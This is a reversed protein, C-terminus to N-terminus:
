GGAFAPWFPMPMKLGWVFVACCFVTLGAGFVLVEGWRFGPAATRSVVVVLMSAVVLGLKPLAVGFAVVSALVLVLPRARVAGVAVAAAAPRLSRATTVLGLAVLLGGLVRPFYGPGMAATTGFPYRRGLVVAALGVSVFLVGAWFDRPNRIVKM